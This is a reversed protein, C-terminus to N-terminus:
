NMLLNNDEEQFCTDKKYTTIEVDEKTEDKPSEKSSKKSASFDKPSARGTIKDAITNGIFDGTTEATKQIARKSAANIVDTTSKKATDLPKQSYKNSLHTGLSKDFSM